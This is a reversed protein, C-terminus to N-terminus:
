IPKEFNGQPFELFADMSVKVPKRNLKRTALDFQKIIGQLLM